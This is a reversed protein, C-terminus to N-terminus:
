VANRRIVNWQLLVSGTGAGYSYGLLPQVGNALGMQLIHYVYKGKFVIGIAAVPANGYAVLIQNLIITSISMLASFIATPLGASCIQSLIKDGCKFYQFAMSM